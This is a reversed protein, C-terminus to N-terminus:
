VSPAVATLGIRGGRGGCEGDGAKARTTAVAGHNRMRPRAIASTRPLSTLSRM